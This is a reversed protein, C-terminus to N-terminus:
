NDAPKLGAPLSTGYLGPNAAQLRAYTAALESAGMKAIADPTIADASADVGAKVGKDANPVVGTRGQGQQGAGAQGTGAAAGPKPLFPALHAPRQDAPLDVLGKLYAGVDKVGGEAAAQEDFEMQFLRRVKPDKIGVGEYTADLARARHGNVETELETVRAAAQELGPIRTNLADLQAQLKDANRAKARLDALEKDDIEAM